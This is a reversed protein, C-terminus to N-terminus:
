LEPSELKAVIRRIRECLQHDNGSMGPTDIIVLEAAAFEEMADELEDADFVTKLPIKLIRAYRELEARGAVRQNDLSVLAVSQRLRITHEAALKAAASTKGVGAPGLMVM